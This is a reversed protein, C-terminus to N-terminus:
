SGSADIVFKSRVSNTAGTDNDRYVVGGIRGGDELPEIVTANLHVEVGSHRAHDLLIQDFVSREVHFAFSSPLFPTDSFRIDWPERTKGWIFTAGTKEVFGAERCQEVLGFDELVPMMSPLLSEGIRHRPFRTRELLLTRHGHRALYGAATSGAPGGGVIIADYYESM